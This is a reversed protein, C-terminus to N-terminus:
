KTTNGMASNCQREGQVAFCYWTNCFTFRASPLFYRGNFSWFYRDDTVPQRAVPHAAFATVLGALQIDAATKNLSVLLHLYQIGRHRAINAAPPV